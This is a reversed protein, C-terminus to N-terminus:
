ILEDKLNINDYKHYYKDESFVITVLFMIAFLDYQIISSKKDDIIAM